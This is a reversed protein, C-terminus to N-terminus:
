RSISGNIIASAKSYESKNVYIIYEYSVQLNEGFTGSRARSGAAFPSSSKRNIVKVSYEIGNQALIDCIESQRRIDYTITLEQRNFITLM